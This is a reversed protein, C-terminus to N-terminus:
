IRLWSNGDVFLGSDGVCEDCTPIKKLSLLISGFHM